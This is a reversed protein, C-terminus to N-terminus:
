ICDDGLKVLHSTWGNEFKLDDNLIGVVATSTYKAAPMGQRWCTVRLEFIQRCWFSFGVHLNWNRNKKQLAASRLHITRILVHGM